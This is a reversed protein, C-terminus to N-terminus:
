GRLAEQWTPLLEGWSNERAWEWAARRRGQWQDTPATLCADMARAIEIPSPAWVHVPGGKMGVTERMRTPIPIVSPWTVQPQVGTMISPMGLAAAELVPLCLGGYRRPLVLADASIPYTDWYNEAPITRSEVSVHGIKQTPIEAAGSIILHCDHLVHPLANLLAQTGNRDLMAPAAQHYFTECQGSGWARLPRDFRDLAVPQPLVEAPHQRPSTNWTTPVYLQSPTGHERHDYLEPNALLVTRAGAANIIDLGLHCYASEITFVVDCHNAFDTLLAPPITRRAYWTSDSPAPYRAQDEFGRAEPGMMVVLTMEPDLHRWVEWTQNGLGGCDARVIM